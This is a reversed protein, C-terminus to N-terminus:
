SKDELGGIRAELEEIRDALDSISSEAEFHIDDLNFRLYGKCIPCVPVTIFGSGRADLRIVGAPEQCMRDGIFRDFQEGISGKEEDTWEKGAYPNYPPGNLFDAKMREAYERCEDFTRRCFYCRDDTAM